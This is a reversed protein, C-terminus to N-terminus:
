GNVGKRSTRVSRKKAPKALVTQDTGTNGKQDKDGDYQKRLEIQHKTEWAKRYDENEYLKSFGTIHKLKALEEAEVGLEACIRGNSWGKDLMSFVMTSMGVVSHKGRARNHRVTSAMRDNIPKDIVVIPLLGKNAEYIDPCTRMITYRHFGDVITYRDNETDYITVVPQTYGDHKISTYLLKMEKTAVSNPNYDNAHVKEVPVLQVDGVPNPSESLRHAIRKLSNIFEIKDLAREHAQEIDEILRSMM